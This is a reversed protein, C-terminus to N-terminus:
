MKTLIFLPLNSIIPWNLDELRGSGWTIRPVSLLLLDLCPLLGLMKLFLFERQTGLWPTDELKLKRKKPSEPRPRWCYTDILHYILEETSGFDVLCGPHECKFNSNLQSLHAEVHNHWEPLSIFFQVMRKSPPLKKNGLCFPCFKAKIPTNRFM